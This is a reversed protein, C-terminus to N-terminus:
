GLGYRHGLGRHGPVARPRAGLLEAARQYPDPAPKGRAVEDGCVVASFYQRGISNLVRDTLFRRTNTVLAM